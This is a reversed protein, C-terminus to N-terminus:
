GGIITCFSSEINNDPVIKKLEEPTTDCVLRGDKMVLVRDASAEVEEMIHTSILVISDHSYQKLFSRLGLKQQPDLGETPEDLILIKPRSLLAGALVVRKKYGKSLTKCPQNIVSELDLTKLLYLLNDVFQQPKLHKIKAMFEMYEYISMDPYLGGTEPVYALVKFFANRESSLNKGNWTIEGGDPTYFCALCRMLTTKGAGNPGLLAIIEGKKLCFNLGQLIIKGGLFKVINKAVLM